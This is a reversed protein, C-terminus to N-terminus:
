RIAVTLAPSQSFLNGNAIVAIPVRDGRIDAPLRVLAKMLGTVFGPVASVEVGDVNRGGVQAYFPAVPKPANEVTISGDPAAPNTVGGGTFFITILAGATAPNEPGNQSGDENRANASASGPTLPLLGPDVAVVQATVPNSLHGQFEVQVDTRPQGVLRQPTVATVRGRSVMMVPAEIGDFLVRTDALATPLGGQANFRLDIAEVPAVGDVQLTIIEGPAVPGNLSLYANGISQITVASPEEPIRQLLAQTPGLPPTFGGSSGTALAGFAGGLYTGTPGTAVQPRDGATAYSSKLLNAGNADLKAVVSKYVGVFFNEPPGSEFPSMVPFPNSDTRGAVWANGGADVSISSAQEYCDAGLYTSYILSGSPSLKTVFLDDTLFTYITGIFGTAFAFAPYACNARLSTQYAGATVPFTKSATTGVVYVNGDADLTVADGQDNNEGGLRTSYIVGGAPDLKLVFGDYLSAAATQLAGQTTAFGANTTVGTLVASGSRDVAIGYPMANAVPTKYIQATGDASLKQVFSANDRFASAFYVAGSADVALRSGADQDLFSSWLLTGDPSIKAAFSNSPARRYANATLPFDVSLTSGSVYINGDPDLALATARDDGQGGLYTSFLMEGAPNFKAVFSDVTPTTIAYALGAAARAFALVSPARGLSLPSFTVGGDESLFTGAFLVNPDRPDVYVRGINSSGLAVARTWNAGSDTSKFLGRDTSAYLIETGGLALSITFNAPFAIRTFIAGSDNSVFLGDTNFLYVRGPTAPDFLAGFRTGASPHGTPLVVETWHEAGDRTVYDRGNIGSLLIQPHFPDLILYDGGALQGPTIGDLKEVWTQGGDTSKAIRGANTSSYIIQPQQPDIAIQTMLVNVNGATFINPLAKFTAGGDSSKLLANSAGVYLVQANVPDPVVSGLSAFPEALGTLNTLPLWTRGSDRSVALRTGTNASRFANRTPFDFSSTTGTVCVNGDKDVAMGTIASSGSGGFRIPSAFALAALLFVSGM